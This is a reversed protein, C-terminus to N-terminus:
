TTYLASLTTTATTQTHQNTPLAHPRTLNSQYTNVFHDFYTDFPSVERGAPNSGAVKRNVAVREVLQAIPSARVCVRCVIMCMCVIGCYVSGVVGVGVFAGDCVFFLRLVREYGSVVVVFMRCGM